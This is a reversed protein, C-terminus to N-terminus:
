QIPVGIRAVVWAAIGVRASMVETAWDTTERAETPQEHWEAEPIPPAAIRRETAKSHARHQRWKAVEGLDATRGRSVRVRAVRVVM